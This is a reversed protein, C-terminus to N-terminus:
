ASEGLRGVFQQLRQAGHESSLVLRVERDHTITHSCKQRRAGREGIGLALVEAQEVFLRLTSRLEEQRIPGVHELSRQDVRDHLPLDAIQLLARRPHAM